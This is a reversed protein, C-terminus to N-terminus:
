GGVVFYLSQLKHQMNKAASFLLKMRLARNEALSNKMDLRGRDGM